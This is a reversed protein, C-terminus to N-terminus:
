LWKSHMLHVATLAEWYRNYAFNARFALLFTFAAVLAGVPYPHSFIEEGEEELDTFEFLLIYVISSVIAPVISKYLASGHIRLLTNFGFIGSEYNIM